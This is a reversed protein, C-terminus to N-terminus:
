PQEDALIELKRRRNGPTIASRINLIRDGEPSHYVARQAGSINPRFWTRIRYPREIGEQMARLQEFGELPEISARVTENNTWTEVYGGGEDETRTLTQFTVRHRGIM